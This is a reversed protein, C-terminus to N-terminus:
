KQLKFRSIEGRSRQGSLKGAILSMKQFLPHNKTRCPSLLLNKNPKLVIPEDILLSEFIPFWPQSTWFPIVVIGVSKEAIIKQLVRPLLAIPPFAYFYNKTWNITFADVYSGEPDKFWSCFIKCKANVRTAFLDIEPKGFARVISSFAFNSLEWETDINELRSERDAEVNEKSPIYSALIWLDRTECWQWIERALKNLHPYQIGGMRNVYSIATTNDMRLLIDCHSLDVAYVKLALFVALLELYNIHFNREEASWFGHSNKGECSAGWGTLSADSYITMKYSHVGFSNVSTLINQKWWSLDENLEEKLSVNGEYENNNALLALYKTRELQKTYLWGYKIAPCAAILNGIFIALDRIRCQRKKDLQKILELIKLRKTEPLELTLRESNVYFGLFQCKRNPTLVSKKWNIIFGLTELLKITTLLNEKCSCFDPDICLIDDLYAVSLYGYKRLFSLVPKLIKTFIFPATSLGFPLCCFEYLQSQFRFRLFKRSEKHIYVLFYADELDLKALYDGRSVLKAVLKIDELKFHVTKIFKNLNKLNLIFRKTGDPKDVLFFSSIFQGDEDQCPRVAGFSLLKDIAQKCDKLEQPSNILNKPEKTQFVSQDFGIKYGQICEM